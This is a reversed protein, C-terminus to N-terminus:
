YIFHKHQEHLMRETFSRPPQRDVVAQRATRKTGVASRAGRLVLTPLDGTRLGNILVTAMEARAVALFSEAEKCPPLMRGFGRQYADLVVGLAGIFVLRQRLDQANTWLQRLVREWGEGCEITKTMRQAGITQEQETM